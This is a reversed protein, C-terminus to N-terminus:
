EDMEQILGSLVKRTITESGMLVTKQMECATKRVLDKKMLVKGIDVVAQKM